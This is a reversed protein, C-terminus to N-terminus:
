KNNGAASYAIHEGQVLFFCICVVSVSFVLGDALLRRERALTTPPPASFSASSSPLHVIIPRNRPRLAFCLSPPSFSLSLSPSLSPLPRGRECLVIIILVNLLAICIQCSQFGGVDFFLCRIYKYIIIIMIFFFYGRHLFHQFCSFCHALSPENEKEQQCNFM